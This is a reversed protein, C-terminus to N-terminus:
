TPRALTEETGKLHTSTFVCPLKLNLMFLERHHRRRRRRRSSNHNNDNNNNNNNSHSSNYKPLLLKCARRRICGSQSAVILRGSTLRLSTRRERETAAPQSSSHWAALWAALGVEFNLNKDGHDRWGSGPWM